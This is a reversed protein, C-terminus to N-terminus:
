PAQTLLFSSIADTNRIKDFFDTKFKPYSLLPGKSCYAVKLSIIFCIYFFYQPEIIFSIIKNIQWM